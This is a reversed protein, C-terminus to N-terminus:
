FYPEKPFNYIINQIHFDSPLLESYIKHIVGTTPIESGDSPGRSETDRATYYFFTSSFDRCDRIFLIDTLVTLNQLFNWLM